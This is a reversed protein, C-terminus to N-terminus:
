MLAGVFFCVIVTVAPSFNNALLFYPSTKYLCAHVIHIHTKITFYLSCAHM